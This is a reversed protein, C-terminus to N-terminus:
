EELFKAVRSQFENPMTQLKLDTRSLAYSELDKFLKFEERGILNLIDADDLLLQREVDPASWPIDLDKKVINWYYYYSILYRIKHEKCHFTTRDLVSGFAEYNYATCYGCSSGIKCNMCNFNKDKKNRLCANDLEKKRNWEKENSYLGDKLNGITYPERVSDPIAIKSFRQCPYFMGDPTFALMNKVGCWVDIGEETTNYHTEFYTCNVDIQNDLIWDVILKLQSYIDIIENYFHISKINNQSQKKM